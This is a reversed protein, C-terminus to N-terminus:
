KGALEVCRGARCGGPCERHGYGAAYDGACWYRRLHGGRCEDHAEGGFLTVGGPGPATPDIAQCPAAEYELVFREGPARAGSAAEAAGSPPRNMPRLGFAFANKGRRLAHLSEDRYIWTTEVTGGPALRALGAAAGPRLVTTHGFDRGNVQLDITANGTEDRLIADGDGDNRLTIRLNIAPPRFGALAEVAAFEPVVDAIVLRPTGAPTDAAGAAKAPGAPPASPDVAIRQRGVRAVIEGPRQAKCAGFRFEAERTATRPDQRARALVPLTVCQQLASSSYGM